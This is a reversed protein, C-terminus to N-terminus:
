ASKNNKQPRGYIDVSQRDYLEINDIMWEKTKVLGEKLSNKPEWGLEKKAKSIDAQWMREPENNEVDLNDDIEVAALRVAEAVTSQQGSGVNFVYSEVKYYNKVALWYAEVMDDVFIFDRVASPNQVVAKTKKISSYLIYPILRHLGEYYGYVSFPRLTIIKEMTFLNTMLAKSLGHNTNPAVQDTEKMPEKRIGYEASTGTNIFIANKCADLLNLTGLINTQLVEQVNSDFHYDYSACHILVDPKIEEITKFIKERSDLALDLHAYVFNNPISSLRWNMDRALAFVENNQSLRKVLNTGIFGSSGTIAVRLNEM